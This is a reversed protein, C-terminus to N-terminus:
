FPIGIIVRTQLEDTRENLGFLSGLTIFAKKFTCSLTPGLAYKEKPFDGKSEIGVRFRSAFAYSIGTAYEHGTKGERELERKIIENYSINFGGIDKALILKAEGMNPKSFDDDRIYEFYLLPDVIFKGKEGMRYRTRLKFGDYESGDDYNKNKFKWM